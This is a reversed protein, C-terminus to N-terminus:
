VIYGAERLQNELEKYFAPVFRNEFFGKNSRSTRNVRVGYPAESKDFFASFSYMGERRTDFSDRLNGTVKPVEDKAIKYEESICNELKIPDVVFAM